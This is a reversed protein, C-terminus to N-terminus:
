DGYENSVSYSITAPPGIYGAPPTYAVGEDTLVVSGIDVSAAVIRKGEGMDKHSLTLTNETSNKLVFQNGFTVSLDRRIVDVAISVDIDPKGYATAMALINAAGVFDPAPTFVLLRGRREVRSQVPESWQSLAYGGPLAFGGFGNEQSNRLVTFVLQRPPPLVHIVATCTKAVRAPVHIVAQCISVNAM